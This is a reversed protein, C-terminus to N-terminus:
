RLREARMPSGGQLWDFSYRGDPLRVPRLLGEVDALPFFDGYSDFGLAVEPQDAETAYLVGDRAALQVSVDGIRYDGDLAAVLETSPQAVVRPPPAPFAGPDLLHLALEPLGGLNSWATDVLLVVGRGRGPEVIVLSSSGGTGGDHVILERGEVTLRVWGMGMVPEGHALPLPELTFALRETVAADGRGLVAQVYRTMDELSSRVGGIGALSGPFDWASTPTGSSLHPQAVEVGAPAKSTFSHTMMLPEFLRQELLSEFRERARQAVIHSLLMFGYNSYQWTKGPASALQVDALSALVFSEDLDAYPNSPDTLPMKPPLPPLGSTHTVLHKLRIVEGMYDPVALEAPLHAALPDELDMVGEEILSSMLFATMTKSISGIEFPTSADLSRARQTDACAIAHEVRVDVVAAAICARTRDGSLRQNLARQLASDAPDGINPSGECTAASGLLAVALVSPISLTTM